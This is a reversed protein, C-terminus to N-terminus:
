SSELWCSKTKWNQPCLLSFCFCLSELTLSYCVKFWCGPTEHNKLTARAKGRTVPCTVNGWWTDTEWGHWTPMAARPWSIQYLTCVIESLKMLYYGEPPYLGEQCLLQQNKVLSVNGHGGGFQSLASNIRHRRQAWGLFWFSFFFPQNLSHPDKMNFLRSTLKWRGRWGWVRQGLTNHIKSSSGKTDWQWLRGLAKDQSLSWIQERDNYKFGAGEGLVACIARSILQGCTLFSFWDQM